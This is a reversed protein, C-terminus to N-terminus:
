VQAARDIRSSHALRLLGILLLGRAVDLDLLEDVHLKTLLLLLLVVSIDVVLWDWTVIM